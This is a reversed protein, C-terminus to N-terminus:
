SSSDVGRRTAVQSVGHGYHRPAPPHGLPQAAKQVGYGGGDAGIWNPGFYRRDDAPESAPQYRVDVSLQVRGGPSQNQLSGRPTFRSFIILDGPQFHASLLRAGRAIAQYAADQAATFAREDGTLRETEMAGILHHSAEVLVLPGDSIPIKDLPVWSTVIQSTNSRALYPHDHHLDTGRGVPTPRLFVYDHPRAPADFLLSVLERLSPGHEVRRLAAGQSLSQWFSGLDSALEERRSAGTAIGAAAPREIEGVDALREFVETRAALVDACELPGALLLYGQPDFSARLRVAGSLCAASMM